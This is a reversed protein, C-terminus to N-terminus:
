KLRRTTENIRRLEFAEDIATVRQKGDMKWLEELTPNAWHKYGLNRAIAMATYVVQMEKYFRQKSKEKEEPDQISDFDRPKTLEIYPYLYSLIIEARRLAPWYDWQSFPANETQRVRAAYEADESIIVELNLVKIVYSSLSMVTAPTMYDDVLRHLRDSVLRLYDNVLHHPVSPPLNIPDQPKPKSCRLVFSSRLTLSLQSHQGLM